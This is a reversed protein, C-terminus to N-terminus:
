IDMACAGIDRNEWAAGGHLSQHGCPEIAPGIGDIVNGFLSPAFAQRVAEDGIELKPRGIRLEADDTDLVAPALNNPDVAGTRISRHTDNGPSFQLLLGVLWIKGLRQFKARIIEIYRREIQVLLVARDRHRM